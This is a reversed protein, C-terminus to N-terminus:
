YNAVVSGYIYSGDNVFTIVDRKSATVTITPATSAPWHISQTNSTWGAITWASAGQTIAIVMREGAKLNNVNFTTVGTTLTLRHMKSIQANCTVSSGPVVDVPKDFGSNKAFQNGKLRWEGFTDSVDEYFVLSSNNTDIINIDYTAGSWFGNITITTAGAVTCASSLTIATPAYTSGTIATIYAGTPIGTGSVSMGIYLNNTGGSLSIASITNVTTSLATTGTFTGSLHANYYYGDTGQYSQGKAYYTNATWTSITM